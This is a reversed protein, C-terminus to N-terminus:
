STAECARQDKTSCRAVVDVDSRDVEVEIKLNGAKIVEIKKRKQSSVFVEWIGPSLNKLTPRLVQTSRDWTRMTIILLGREADWLGRSFDVGGALNMGVIWPQSSVEQTWPDDCIKKMGDEVNLRAYGIAANGSFPDM